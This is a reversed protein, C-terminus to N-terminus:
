QFCYMFFCVNDVCPYLKELVIKLECKWLYGQLSPVTEPFTKMWLSDPFIVLSLTTGINPMYTASYFQWSSVGFIPFLTHFMHMFSAGHTHFTFMVLLCM